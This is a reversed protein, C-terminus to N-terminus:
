VAHVEPRPHGVAQQLAQLVGQAAHEFTFGSVAQRAAQSMQRWHAEDALLRCGREVWL